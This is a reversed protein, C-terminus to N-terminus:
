KYYSLFNKYVIPLIFSYIDKGKAECVKFCDDMLRNRLNAEKESYFPMKSECQIYDNFDDDPHFSLKEVQVLHKVFTKVDKLTKIEAIM